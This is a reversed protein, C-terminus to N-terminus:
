SPTNMGIRRRWPPKLSPMLVIALKGNMGIFRGYWMNDACSVVVQSGRELQGAADVILATAARRTRKM